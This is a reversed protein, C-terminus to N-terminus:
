APKQEDKPQAAEADRIDQEAYQMQQYEYAQQELYAQEEYYRQQEAEHRRRQEREEAQREEQRDYEAYRHGREWEEYARRCEYDGYEGHKYPNRDYSESRRGERYADYPDRPCEKEDYWGM